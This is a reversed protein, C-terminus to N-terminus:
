EAARAGCGAGVSTPGCRSGVRAVAAYDGIIPRESPGARGRSRSAPGRRPAAREDHHRRAYAGTHFPTKRARRAIASGAARSRLRFHSRACFQADVRVRKTFSSADARVASVVSASRPSSSLSLGDRRRTRTSATNPTGCRGAVQRKAWKRCTEGNCPAVTADRTRWARTTTEDPWKDCLTPDGTVPFEPAQALRM